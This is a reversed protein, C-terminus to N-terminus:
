RRAPSVAARRIWQRTSGMRRSPQWSRSSRRPRGLFVTRALAAHYRHHCGGLEVNSAAGMDFPDGNWTLHPAASKTGSPAHPLTAPYDGWHEPTGSLLAETIKAVADCERVGARIVEVAVGMARSVIAGAARMM